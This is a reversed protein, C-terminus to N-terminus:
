DETFQISTNIATVTGSQATTTLIVWSNAPITADNVGSADTGTTTSTVTQGATYVNTLSTRDTGFGINYTVSPTASGVLVARTNTVTIAVPTFFIFENEAASPTPLNINKTLTAIVKKRTSGETFYLVDSAYEMAGEEPTTLKTGDTIKLPATNATATGAAIHLLATPSTNRIGIGGSGSGLITLQETFSGSNGFMHVGSGDFAARANSFRLQAGVSNDLRIESNTSFGTITGTKIIANGDVYLNGNVRLKETTVLSTTGIALSGGNLVRMAETAGNNGVQFIHDAGTAGVGTTTKYTLPQTTSTGGVISPTTINTTFTPTTSFVSLGTGTEDSLAAALGASNVLLNEKADLAAQLDTQDSLTGTISGWTGGGGAPAAAVWFSGNWTLIYNTTPTTTIDVDKLQKLAINHKTQANSSIFFLVLVITLINKM